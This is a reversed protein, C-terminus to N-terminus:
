ETESHSSTVEDRRNETAKERFHPTLVLVTKLELHLLGNQVDNFVILVMENNRLMLSLSM